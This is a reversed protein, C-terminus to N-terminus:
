ACIFNGDALRRKLYRLLDLKFRATRLYRALSKRMGDLTGHYECVLTELKSGRWAEEMANLFPSGKPLYIVKVDGNKRLFERVLRARHPSARDVTVAVKGFHRRLGKLYRVFTDADFREYTRFFQRGDKAISGYATIKEHSGTYPVGM